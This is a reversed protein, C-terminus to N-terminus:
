DTALIKGAANPDCPLVSLGVRAKVIEKKKGM